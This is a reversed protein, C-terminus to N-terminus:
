RPSRPCLQALPRMFVSKRYWERRWLSRDVFYLATLSVLLFLLLRPGRLFNAAWPHSSFNGAVGGGIMLTLVLLAVIVDHLTAERVPEGAARRKRVERVPRVLMYWLGVAILAFFLGAVALTAWDV